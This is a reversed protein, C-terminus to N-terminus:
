MIGAAMLLLHIIIVMFMVLAIGIFGIVICAIVSLILKLIKM